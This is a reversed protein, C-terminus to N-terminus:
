RGRFGQSIEASKFQNAVSNAVSDPTQNPAQHVAEINVLPGPPGGPNHQNPDNANAQQQAQQQGQGATNPIAPRAGAIGALVRGPLTKFPDANPNSGGFSLTELVGSAAIGGLQALYGISRNALQIGTQAAQGAGPALMDLGAAGASLAAGTLGGTVGSVGGGQAGPAGTPQQGAIVSGSAFPAAQPAGAGMFPLAGGGGFAPPRSNVTIGAPATSGNTIVEWAGLGQPPTGNYGYFATRDAVAMQQERTALHPMPAFEQGGYANWTSPSFQLGGYHGNRGTDANAWDGGSEKAAVADWNFGSLLTSGNVVNVPVPGSGSGGSLRGDAAIHVHDDHRGAQGLTYFDGFKGVGKGNKINSAFGPSDHILELLSGGYYSAMYDAFARMAQPSGSYDGALGQGHYGDDGPRDGSSKTLGFQAAIQDIQSITLPGGGPRMAAPGLASAGYAYSSTGFGLPSKGAAINQAGFMGFLGHGGQIPSAQSIANLQALMPAAALNGVTKILNEVFGSLGEGLGFDDDLAAGLSDMGTAFEKAAGEMKKWTGQQAELLRMEASQLARGQSILAARANYKDQETADADAMVELYRYRANQLSTQANLRSTEADFVKQPDVEYYGPGTPMNSGVLSGPVLPAGATVGEEGPFSGLPISDLSWQSPDFSPKDKGGSGGDPTPDIPKPDGAVPADANPNPAANGFQADWLAGLLPDNPRKPVDNSPGAQGPQGPQGPPPADVRFGPPLLMNGTADPDNVPATNQPDPMYGNNPSFVDTIFQPIDRVVPLDSFWEAIDTKLDSFFQGVTRTAEEWDSKFNDTATKTARDSTGQLDVFENKAPDLDLHNIADGMDEFQTGFLRQWILAQQLPDHIERIRDLVAALAIKAADGGQAFRNAMDEASFGLAEFGEQTSKSGDVARISFEKLSDAVKDTDRAGGEFGQKLLTLVEDADLGFKRFQTSYEDITDLWDGSVDLGSQFGATIIDAADSVNQALGTRLLTTISRSLQETTADTTASLGQLKQIVTQIEADTANPDILGARTAATAAALNDEVSAGFNSAYARGAASAYQSMSADDIGLRAQFQDRLAISDLGDAIGEALKRGAAVGLLGVGALAIGIPGAAAGLRLLASSGAFGGVFENAMEQGSQGANSIAGRLGQQTYEEYASAAQRIAREEDRRAKAAREAQQILKARPTDGRAMLDDLKAQEARLKGTADRAADFAKEVKASNTRAGSAFASMFDGGVDQGIRDFQRQIDNATRRLSADDLETAVTMQVM